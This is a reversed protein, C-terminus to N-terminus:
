QEKDVPARKEIRVSRKGNACSATDTHQFRNPLTPLSRDKRANEAHWESSRSRRGSKHLPVFRRSCASDFEKRSAKRAPISRRDQYATWSRLHTAALGDAGSELAPALVSPAPM